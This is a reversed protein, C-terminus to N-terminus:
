DELLVKLKKLFRMEEQEKEPLDKSSLGSQYWRPKKAEVGHLEEMEGLNDGISVDAVLPFPCTLGFWSKLPPNEMYYKIASAAEDKFEPNIAPVIADHIFLVPKIMDPPADRFIRNIAILGLDSAFRQVPANVAQRESGQIISDDFSEVNPLRRLSGHLARVFGYKNAMGKMKRHWQELAPYSKFFNVRTKEAEEDTYEIGYDTKAYVKFKRWWMGYLYGFNVAKAQYRKIDCYQKVTAKERESKTLGELYKESGPWEKRVDMLLSNDKRGAMFKKFPINTVAAATASHIDGGEKYIQIMKSENAMWAAVRLEIQSYDLELFKWGEIPPLFIRRFEKAM